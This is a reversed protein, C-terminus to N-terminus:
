AIKVRPLHIKLAIGHKTTLFHSILIRVKESEADFAKIACFIINQPKVPTHAHVRTHTYMHTHDSKIGTHKKSQNTPSRPRVVRSAAM